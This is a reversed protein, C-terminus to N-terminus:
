ATGNPTLKRRVTAAGAFYVDKAPTDGGTIVDIATRGIKITDMKM